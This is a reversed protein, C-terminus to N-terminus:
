SWAGQAAKLDRVWRYVTQRTVGLEEAIAAASTGDLAPQLKNMFGHRQAKLKDNLADRLISEFEEHLTRYEQYAEKLPAIVVRQKARREEMLEARMPVAEKTTINTYTHWQCYRNKRAAALGGEIKRAFCPVANIKKPVEGPPRFNKPVNAPRM